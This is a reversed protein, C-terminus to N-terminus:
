GEWCWCFRSHDEDSFFEYETLRDLFGSVKSEEMKYWVRMGGEDEIEVAVIHECNEAM